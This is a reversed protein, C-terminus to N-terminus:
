RTFLSILLAILLAISTTYLWIRQTQLASVKDSEKEWDSELKISNERMLEAEEFKKDLTTQLMYKDAKLEDIESKLGSIENEQGVSIRKWEDRNKNLEKVKDRHTKGTVWERSLHDIAYQLSKGFETNKYVDKLQNLNNTIQKRNM